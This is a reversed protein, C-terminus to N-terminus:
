APMAQARAVFARVLSAATEEFLSDFLASMLGNSFQFRLALEIRCGQDAIPTFSWRGELTRFPGEVLHMHVARGPDLRNRTTFQMRLPGRRVALRALMEREGRELVQASTCGPVFEPYHEVEEVLRYVSEPSRAIQASRTMERM